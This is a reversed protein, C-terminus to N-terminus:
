YKLPIELKNYLDNIKNKWTFKSKSMFHAIGLNEAECNIDYYYKKDIVKYNEINYKHKMMLPTWGQEFLCIFFNGPREKRYINIEDCNEKAYLLLDKCVGAIQEYAAGGVVGFNHSTLDKDYNPYYPPLNKPVYVDNHMKRYNPMLHIWSEEHFTVFPKNWCHKLADKYLYLDNDLHFYPEKMYSMAVLKSVCWLYHPLGDFADKPFKRIESYPIRSLAKEGVDDTFLITEYGHSRAFHNACACMEFWPPRYSADWYSFIIKPRM